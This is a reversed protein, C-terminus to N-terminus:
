IQVILNSKNYKFIVIFLRYILIFTSCIIRSIKIYKLILQSYFIVIYYCISLSPFKYYKMFVPWLKYSFDSANLNIQTVTVDELIMDLKIFSRPIHQLCICKQTCIINKNNWQRLPRHDMTTLSTLLYPWPRAFLCCHYVM